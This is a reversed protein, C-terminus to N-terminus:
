YNGGLCLCTLVGPFTAVLDSCCAQWADWDVYPILIHLVADPHGEGHLELDVDNKHLGLYRAVYQRINRYTPTM